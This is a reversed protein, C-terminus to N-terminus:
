RAEALLKAGEEDNWELGGEVRWVEMGASDYLITTPLVINGGYAGLLANDTDTYPELNEIRAAKFFDRVPTRGELDQSVVIVSM